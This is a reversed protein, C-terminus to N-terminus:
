EENENYDSNEDYNDSELEEEHLDLNYSSNREKNEELLNLEYANM